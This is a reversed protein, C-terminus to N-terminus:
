AIKPAYVGAYCVCFSVLILIIGCVMNFILFNFNTKNEKKIKENDANYASIAISSTAIALVASILMMFGVCLIKINM